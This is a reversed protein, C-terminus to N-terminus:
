LEKEGRKNTLPVWRTGNWEDEYAWVTGDGDLAYLTDESVAISVFKPKKVM